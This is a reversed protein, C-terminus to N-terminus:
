ERALHRIAKAFFDRSGFNGSKLVLELPPEGLSRLAPVGPDLIATIEVAPIELANVVAGATEGGAVVLRRVGRECVMRRAIEGFAQEIAAAAAPDRESEPASSYIIATGAPVLQLKNLQFMPIGAARAVELQELTAASCSGALVLVSGSSAPESASADAVGWRAALKMALGSGGTILPLDAAARAIAELDAESVCDVLAVAVGDERLLAMRCRIADAGDRVDDLPILGAKRRMQAQLHRVLNSDTMPNLPHHRMHTEALPRGGVFLHGMYQTRGNVPLAPVAITFDVGMRDLLAETVPGINGERTSDFTSCYKFQVQAPELVRLREYAELSMRCAEAAPIARSKLCLVVAQYRGKLGEFFAPSQLGFVQVTRVGGAFLMGALDAGGTYDDAIAAFRV